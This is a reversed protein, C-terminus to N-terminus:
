YATKQQKQNFIFKKLVGLKQAFVSLNPHTIWMKPSTIWMEVYTIWMEVFKPGIYQPITKSM